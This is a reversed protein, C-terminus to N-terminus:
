SSSWDVRQVTGLRIRSLIFRDIIEWSCGNMQFVLRMFIDISVLQFWAYKTNMREIIWRSTRIRKSQFLEHTSLSLLHVTMTRNTRSYWHSYISPYGKKGDYARTSPREFFLTWRPIARNVKPSRNLSSHFVFLIWAVIWFWTQLIFLFFNNTLHLCWNM